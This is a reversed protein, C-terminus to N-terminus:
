DQPPPWCVAHPGATAATRPSAPDAPHHLLRPPQPEGQIQRAPCRAMEALIRSAEDQGMVSQVVKHRDLGGGHDITVDISHSLSSMSANFNMFTSTNASPMSVQM